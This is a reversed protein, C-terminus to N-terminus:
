LSITSVIGFALIVIIVWANGKRSKAAASQVLFASPFSGRRTAATPWNAPHVRVVFPLSRGLRLHCPMVEDAVGCVSGRSM